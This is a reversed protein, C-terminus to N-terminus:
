DHPVEYIRFSMGRVITHSVLRLRADTIQAELGDGYSVYVFRSVRSAVLPFWTRTISTPSSVTYLEHEVFYPSLAAGMWWLDTIVPLSAARLKADYAALDRKTVQIEMIGRVSFQCAVGFALGAILLLSIRHRRSREAEYLNAIGAVALISFLPFVILGYRAGWEPGGTQAGVFFSSVLYFLLYSTTLVVLFMRTPTSRSGPMPLVAIAFMCYPAAILIGHFARYRSPMILAALSMLSLTLVGLLIAKSRFRPRGVSVMLTLIVVMLYAATAAEPLYVGFRSPENVLVSQVHRAIPLLTFQSSGPKGEFVRQLVNAYVRYGFEGGNLSLIISLITSLAALTLVLHMAFRRKPYGVILVGRCLITVFALTSVLSVVLILMDIRLLISLLLCFFVVLIIWAQHERRSSSILVVCGYIAVMGSLVALSHEWFLVSYFWLPSCLGVVLVTVWAGRSTIRRVILGSLIAVFIGSICPLFYIGRIGLLRYALCSLGPFLFPWGFSTGGAINPRPYVSGPPYFALDRDYQGGGYPLVFHIHESFRLGVAQLFKGGEDPSWFVYFPLICLTLIYLTAVSGSALLFLTLPQKDTKGLFPETRMM